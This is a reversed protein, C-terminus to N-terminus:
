SEFRTELFKYDQSTILQRSHVGGFLFFVDPFCGGCALTDGPTSPFTSWPGSGDRTIRTWVIGDRDGTVSFRSFRESVVADPGKWGGSYENSTQCPSGLTCSPCLRLKMHRSIQGRFVLNVHKTLRLSYFNTWSYILM